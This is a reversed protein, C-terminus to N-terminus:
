SAELDQDRRNTVLQVHRTRRQIRIQPDGNRMRIEERIEEPTMRLSRQLQWRQLGYDLL